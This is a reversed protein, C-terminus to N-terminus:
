FTLLNKFYLAVTVMVTGGTVLTIVFVRLKSGSVVVYKKVERVTGTVVAGLM